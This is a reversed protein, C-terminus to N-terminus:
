ADPMLRPNTWVFVGDKLVRESEGKGESHCTYGCEARWGNGAFADVLTREIEKGHTGICCIRVAKNLAEMQPPFVTKEAGQIDSHLFDVEGTEALLTALSVAPVTRFELPKGGNAGIRDAKAADSMTIHSDLAAPDDALAAMGAGWDLDPNIIPFYAWGDREAIVQYAIHHHAMDAGNRRMFDKTMEVHDLDGELSWSRFGGHPHRMRYGREAKVAWEGPAAGLSVMRYHPGARDLSHLLAAVEAMEDLAGENHAGFQPPDLLDLATSGGRYADFQRTISTADFALM